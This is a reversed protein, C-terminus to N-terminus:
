MAGLTLGGDVTLVHGTIYSAEDSALFLVANAVDQPQGFRKLPISKALTPAANRVAETMETECFGPAVANVTINRRAIEKSLCRTLGQIGGKSAAYNVQGSSGFDAAVSSMNIIRGYRESMMPRVAAQCFNFVSTLNTDIVVQWDEPKMTALLMDNIIGANNVLIDLRGWKDLVTQVAADADEKSKVDAAIAIAEHQDTALDAVVQDALDKNSRYVFAVKAGERALTRVIANGLGRTGGTVLAVKGALRM